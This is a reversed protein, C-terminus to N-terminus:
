ERSKDSSSFRSASPRTVGAGGSDAPALAARHALISAPAAAAARSAAKLAEPHRRVALGVRAAALRWTAEERLALEPRRRKLM